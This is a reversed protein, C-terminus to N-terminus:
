EKQSQTLEEELTEELNEDQVRELEEEQTIQKKQLERKCYEDFDLMGICHKIDEYKKRYENNMASYKCDNVDITFLELTLTDRGNFLKHIYFDFESMNPKERSTHFDVAKISSIKELTYVTGDPNIPIYCMTWYYPKIREFLEMIQEFMKKREPNFRYSKSNIISYPITITNQITSPTAM